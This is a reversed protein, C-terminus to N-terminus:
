PNTKDEQGFDNLNGNEINSRLWEGFLKKPFRYGKGVRMYPIKMDDILKTLTNKHVRLIKCVEEYNYFSDENVWDNM